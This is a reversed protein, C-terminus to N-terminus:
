EWILAISSPLYPFEVSVRYLDFENENIGISQFTDSLMKSYWPIERIQSSFVGQGISSVDEDYRFREADVRKRSHNNRNCDSIDNYIRCKPRGLAMSKHLFVDMYAKKTPFSIGYSLHIQYSKENKKTRKELLGKTRVIQATVLNVSKYSDDESDPMISDILLSNDLSQPMKCTCYKAFYPIGGGAPVSGEILPSFQLSKDSLTSDTETIRPLDYLPIANPRYRLLNSYGRVAYVTTLDSAEPIITALFSVAASAGNIFRQARFCTKKQEYMAKQRGTDSEGLLMLDLTARDGTYVDIFQLFDNYAKDAAEASEKSAGNKKASKLFSRYSSAGPIYKASLYIDKGDIFKVIKWTLTKDLGLVKSIETGTRPSRPLSSVVAITSNKLTTLIHQSRLGFENLM